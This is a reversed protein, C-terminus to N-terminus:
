GALYQWLGTSRGQRWLTALAQEQIQRIREGSLGFVRDVEDCTRGSGGDLGFRLRLVRAHRRPLSRLARRVAACREAAFVAELPSVAGADAIRRPDRDAAEEILAELSLPPRALGRLRRM